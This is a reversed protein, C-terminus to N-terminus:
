HYSFGLFLNPHLFLLVPSFSLSVLSRFLFMGFHVFFLLLFLFHLLFLSLPFSFTVAASNLQHEGAGSTVNVLRLADAGGTSRTTGGDAVQSLHVSSFILHSLRRFFCFLFRAVAFLSM